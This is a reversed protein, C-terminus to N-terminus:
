RNVQTVHAKAELIEHKKIAAHNQQLPTKAPLNLSVVNLAYLDVCLNHKGTGCPAMSGLQGAENRAVKGGGPTLGGGWPCTPGASRCPLNFM